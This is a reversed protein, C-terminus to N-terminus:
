LHVCNIEIILTRNSRHSYLLFSYKNQSQITDFNSKKIEKLIYLFAGYLKMCLIHKTKMEKGKKM